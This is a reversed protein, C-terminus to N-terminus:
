FTLSPSNIGNPAVFPHSRRRLNYIQSRLSPLLRRLVHQTKTAGAGFLARDAQDCLDLLSLPNRACLGWRSARDFVAQLRGRDAASFDGWWCPSSYIVRAVITARGQLSSGPIEDPPWLIQLGEPCLCVPCGSRCGQDCPSFTLHSDIVVGLLLLNDVRSISPLLPPPHYGRAWRREGADM